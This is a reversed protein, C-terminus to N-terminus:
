KKAVYKVGDVILWNITRPDVQRTRTDYAKGDEKKIEMDIFSVRGFEDFSGYHRGVMTREKGELADKVSAKIQADYDTKSVIKGKNPYLATLEKVVDEAKVKLNFNVTMATKPHAKFKEVIETRSIKETSTVLSSSNLKNILETGQITMSLGADDTVKITDGKVDTSELTFYQTFSLKDGKKLTGILNSM